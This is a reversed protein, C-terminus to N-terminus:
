GGVAMEGPVKPRVTGGVSSARASSTISYVKRLADIPLRSTDHNTAAFAAAVKAAMGLIRLTTTTGRRKRNARAQWQTKGGLLNLTRDRPISRRGSLM